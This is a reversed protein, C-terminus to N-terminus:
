IAARKRRLRGLGVLALCGAILGPIGAGVIPGPVALPVLYFSEGGDTGGSFQARFILRDGAQLGSLDFGSLIYDGFGNGQRIDPMLTPGDYHALTQINNNNADVRFLRFSDLTMAPAGEASNVDIAVGFSARNALATIIQGATYALADAEDGSALSGGVLATSFFTGGATQGTNVFNNFGFGDPNHAQQTACIICPDSVSQPVPNALTGFQLLVDAKAPLAFAAAVAVALALRRMPFIRQTLAYLRYWM